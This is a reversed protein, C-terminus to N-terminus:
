RLFIILPRMKLCCIKFIYRSLVLSVHKSFFYDFHILTCVKGVFKIKQPKTSFSQLVFSFHHFAVLKQNNM